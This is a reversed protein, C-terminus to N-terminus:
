RSIVRASRRGADLVTAEGAAVIRGEFEHYGPELKVPATVVARSEVRNAGAPVVEITRRAIVEGDVLLHVTVDKADVGGINSVAMSVTCDDAGGEVWVSEPLLTLCPKIWYEFCLRDANARSRDHLRDNEPTRELGYGGYGGNYWAIGRMEPFQRRIHRVVAEQEGPDILDPRESTDLAVLTHCDNGYAPTLMDASRVIEGIRDDITAYIDDANVALPIARFVYVEVLVLNAAKRYLQALKERLGGAHWVAFFRDPDQERARVMAEMSAVSRQEWFTDPYGGCEDIGPGRSHEPLTGTFKGYFRREIEDLVAQRDTEALEKNYYSWSFGGYEWHLPIIGRQALRERQAEDSASTVVTTWRADAYERYWVFHPRRGSAVVPLTLEAENNTRDSEACVENPDIVARVHYLGNVWAKWDISGVLQGAGTPTLELTFSRSGDGPATITLRGEVREPAEGSVEARVTITVLDGEEPIVPQICIGGTLYPDATLSLDMAMGPGVALAGLALYSLLSKM